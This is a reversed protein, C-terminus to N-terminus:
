HAMISMEALLSSYLSSTLLYLQLLRPGQADLIGDLFEFVLALQESTSSIGSTSRKSEPRLGKYYASCSLNLRPSRREPGCLDPRVPCPDRHSVSSPRQCLFEELMKIRPPYLHIRLPFSGEPSPVHGCGQADRAGQQPLCQTEFGEPQQFYPVALSNEHGPWSSGSSM